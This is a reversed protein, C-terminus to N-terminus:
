WIEKGKSSEILNNLMQRTANECKLYGDKIEFNKVLKDDNALGKLEELDVRYIAINSFTVDCLVCEYLKSDGNSDEYIKTLYCYRM